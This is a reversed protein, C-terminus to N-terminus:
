SRSELLRRFDEVKLGLSEAAKYEDGDFEDLAAEAMGKLSQKGGLMTAKIAGKGAAKRDLGHNVDFEARRHYIFESHGTKLREGGQLLRETVKEDDVFTGNGSGMDKVEVGDRTPKLQCHVRSADDDDTIQVFNSVGRGITVTREGIHFTKGDVPGAVGVLWNVRVGGGQAAAGRDGGGGAARAPAEDKNRSRLVFVVVVVIIVGVLGLPILYKM